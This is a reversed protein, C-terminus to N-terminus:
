GGQFASGRAGARSSENARAPTTKPQPPEAKPVGKLPTMLMGKLTAQEEGPLVDLGIELSGPDRLPRYTGFLMDWWPLVSAFNSDTEPLTRSHHVWHMWPTVVVARLPRDIVRPLRMNSHHFLAVPMLVLKYVLLQPVTVGLLPLLVLMASCELVVEGTHFRFTTSADVHADSHHVAHFRWLAPVKHAAVHWAYAFLDLLLFSLVWGAWAPAGAGVLWHLAGFGNVRALETTLLIAGSFLTGVLAGNLLGLTLNPLMDRFRRRRGEFMPAVGEIVYLSALAVASVLPTANALSEAAM